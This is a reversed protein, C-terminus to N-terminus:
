SRGAQIGTADVDVVVVPAAGSAAYVIQKITGLMGTHKDDRASITGDVVRTSLRSGEWYKTSVALPPGAYHSTSKRPLLAHATVPLHQDM